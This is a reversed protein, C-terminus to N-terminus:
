HLLGLSRCLGLLVPKPLVKTCIDALTDASSVHEVDYITGVGERVFHYHVAIHKSRATIKANRVLDLAPQNDVHLVPLRDVHVASLDRITQIMWRLHSSASPCAMYEAEYTSKAVTSQRKSSWAVPSGNLLQIWVGFAKSNDPNTNYSADSYIDLMAPSVERPYFLRYDLTHKVSRLVDKAMSLHGEMPKANFTSMFATPFALDMRTGTVLFNVSGSLLQYMTPDVPVDDDEERRPFSDPDM